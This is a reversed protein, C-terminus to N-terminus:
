YGQEWEPESEKQEWKENWNEGEDRWGELLETFDTASVAYNIGIGRGCGGVLIGVVEGRVNVVPGGSNGPNGDADVMILPMDCFFSEYVGIKSIIGCTVYNTFVADYPSGIVLIPQSVYIDATTELAPIDKCSVSLVACDSVESMRIGHVKRKAGDIFVVTYEGARDVVHGATIILGCEDIIFGSGAHCSDIEIRVVSKMVADLQFVEAPSNTVVQVPPQAPHMMMVHIPMTSALALM